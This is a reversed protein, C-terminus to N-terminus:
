IPKGNIEVEDDNICHMLSVMKKLLVKFNSGDTKALTTYKPVIRMLFGFLKEKFM